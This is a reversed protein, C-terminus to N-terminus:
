LLEPGCFDLGPMRWAFHAVYEQAFVALWEGDARQPVVDVVQEAADAPLALRARMHQAVAERRVQELVAGFDHANLFHEPVRVDRGRLDIRVDVRFAEAFRELFRM